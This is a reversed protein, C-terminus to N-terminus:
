RDQDSDKSGKKHDSSKQPASSPQQQPESQRSPKEVQREQRQPQPERQQRQEQARQSQEFRKQQDQQARQAQEQAAQQRRMEQEQARQQDQQARQAKEQADQQKRLNQEQAQQQQQQIRLAKEQADQQKRLSQEQARQQEQVRQANGQADQQKRLAQEQSRQQEQQMRQAKEQADQANQQEQAKQRRQDNAPAAQPQKDASLDNQKQPEIAPQTVEAARVPPVFPRLTEGHKGKKVPEPTPETQVAAPVQQNTNFQPNQPIGPNQSQKDRGKQKAEANVAPAVPLSKIRQNFSNLDKESPAIAPAQTPTVNKAEQKFRSHLDARVKPDSVGAWGTDIAKPPLIRAAHSPKYKTTPAEVKPAFVVLQNGQQKAMTPGHNHRYDGVDTQQRLQLTQIPRESRRSVKEYNPGGNYVINTVKNVTINTINTTNNIITVNRRRDIIVPRLAPNGFHRTECFNYYTPGIDCYSDIWFSFGISPQWRAAPPLPAWGIYDDSSRWSVWAPAWEYDPVWFWGEGPIKAWRGYHYTIGGWDEYSVWTWGADTNAWYGDTYPAWDEDVNRPHWCLGQEPLDVWEGMPDLTDYFYEFSVASDAKATLPSAICTIFLATLLLLGLNSYKM